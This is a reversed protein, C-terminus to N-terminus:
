PRRRADWTVEIRGPELDFATRTLLRPLDGLVQVERDVRNLQMEVPLTVVLRDVRLLNPAITLADMAGAAVEGLMEGLPRRSSM